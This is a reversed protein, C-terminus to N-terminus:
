ERIEKLHKFFEGFYLFSSIFLATGIATYVFILIEKSFFGSKRMFLGLAIMFIVLFYSKVEQFNFICTYDPFKYIRKINKRALYNFGFFSILFASVFAFGISFFKLKGETKLFWGFSLINLMIGVGSWMIGSVFYLIERKVGKRM